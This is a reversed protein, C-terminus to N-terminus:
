SAVLEWGKYTLKVITVQEQEGQAVREVYTYGQLIGWATCAALYRQGRPNSDLAAFDDERLNEFHRKLTGIYEDTKFEAAHAMGYAIIASGKIDPAPPEEVKRAFRHGSPLGDKWLLHYNGFSRHRHRYRQIDPMDPTYHVRMEVEHSDGVASIDIWQIDDSSM